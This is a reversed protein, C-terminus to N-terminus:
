SSGDRASALSWASARVVRSSACNSRSRRLWSRDNWCAVLVSSAIRFCAAPVPRGAAGHSSRASIESHLGGSCCRGSGAAPLTASVGPVLAPVNGHREVMAV